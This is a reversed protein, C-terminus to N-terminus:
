VNWPLTGTQHYERRRAPDALVEKAGNLKKMMATAVEQEEKCVRDPHWILVLKRYAALIVDVCVGWERLELIEYLEMGVPTSLPAPRTTRRLPRTPRRPSDFPPPTLLPPPGGNVPVDDWSSRTVPPDVVRRSVPSVPRPDYNERDAWDPDGPSRRFPTNSSRPSPSPSINAFDKCEDLPM